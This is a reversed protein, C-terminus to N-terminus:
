GRRGWSAGLERLRRTRGAHGLEPGTARGPDKVLRLRGKGVLLACAGGPHLKRSCHGRRHPALLERLAPPRPTASALRRHPPNALTPSRGRGRRVGVLPASPMVLLHRRAHSAHPSSPAAPPETTPRPSPQQTSLNRHRLLPEGTFQRRLCHRWRPCPVDGRHHSIDDRSKPLLHGACVGSVDQDLEYAPQLGREGSDREVIVRQAVVSFGNVAQRGHPPTRAGYRRLVQRREGWDRAGCRDGGDPAPGCKRLREEPSM